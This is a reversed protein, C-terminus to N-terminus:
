RERRGQGFRQGYTVGMKALEADVAACSDCKRGTATWEIRTYHGCISENLLIREDDPPVGQAELEDTDKRCHCSETCIESGLHTCSHQEIYKVCM